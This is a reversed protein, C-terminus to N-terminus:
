KVEIEPYLRKLMTSADDIAFQWDVCAAGREM